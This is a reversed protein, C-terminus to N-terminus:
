WVEGKDDITVYYNKPETEQVKCTKKYKSMLKTFSNYQKPNNDAWFGIATPHDDRPYAVKINFDRDLKDILEANRIEKDDIHKLKICRQREAELYEEIRMGTSM